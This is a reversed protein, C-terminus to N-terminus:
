HHLRAYCLTRLCASVESIAYSCHAQLSHGTVTPNHQSFPYVICDFSLVRVITLFFLITYSPNMPM